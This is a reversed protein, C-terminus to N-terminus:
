IDYVLTGFPEIEVTINKNDTLVVANQKIESNNIVVLKNSQPYYCCEVFANDTLYKQRIYEGAAKLILQMLTRNNIDGHTFSSLYIGKGNGFQHM